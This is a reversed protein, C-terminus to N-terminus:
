TASKIIDEIEDQSVGNKEALKILLMTQKRAEKSLRSSGFFLSFIWAIFCIGLISSISYILISDIDM